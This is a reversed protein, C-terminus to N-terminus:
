LVFGWIQRWEKIGVRVVCVIVGVDDPELTYYYQGPKNVIVNEIAKFGDVQIYFSHSTM